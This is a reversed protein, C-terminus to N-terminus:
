WRKEIYKSTCSIMKERYIQYIVKRNFSKYLYLSSTSVKKTSTM